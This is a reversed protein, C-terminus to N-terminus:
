DHDSALLSTPWADHLRNLAGERRLLGVRGISGAGKLGRTSRPLSTTRKRTDDVYRSGSPVLGTRSGSAVLGGQPGPTIVQGIQSSTFHCFAPREVHLDNRCEQWYKQILLFWGDADQAESRLAGRSSTHSGLVHATSRINPPCGDLVGM